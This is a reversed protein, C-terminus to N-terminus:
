PTYDELCLTFSESKGGSQTYQSNGATCTATTGDKKDVVKYKAKSDSCDVVELGPDTTSAEDEVSMCDGVEAAEADNLSTIGGVIMMAVVIVAMAINKPTALKSKNSAPPPPAAPGGQMYPSPQQQPYGQPAQGGYPNGGQPQGYPNQGQPPPTTM